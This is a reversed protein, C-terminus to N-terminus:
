AHVRAELPAWLSSAAYARFRRMLDQTLPGTKLPQGDLHTLPLIERTTSTLFVESANLLEQLPIAREEIPYPCIRLVVARTIGRLIHDRPTILTKNQVIFLNTTAGELVTQDPALYLVESAGAQKARALHPMAGLYCLSKVDTLTRSSPATIASISAPHTTLPATLLAFTPTNTQTLGDPSVGGTLVLRLTMEGPPARLILQEAIRELEEATHPLQIGVTAASYQLRNVHERFHFPKRNYTRVFDFVGYGRLLGLDYISLAIQEASCFQGNFFCPWSM